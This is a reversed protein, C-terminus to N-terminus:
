GAPGPETARGAADGPVPPDSAPDLAELWQWDPSGYRLFELRKQEVRSRALSDLILGAAFLVSALVVMGTALIATPVRPVLGTELFTRLLPVALAVAAVVLALGISGFFLLPRTEKLLVIFTKLIRWGDAYTRLKSTSGETRPSYRTAVEGVPISLHGAHVSMETEIEFGSSVAPFSKVFRRTFVRYGSFIDSFARGFLWRYLRNFLRNGLDHGARSSEGIGHRTGVVMDVQDGHLRRVLEPAAAADYTGDGDAM